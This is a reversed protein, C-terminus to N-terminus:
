VQKRKGYHSAKRLRTMDLLKEVLKNVGWCSFLCSFLLVYQRTALLYGCLSVLPVTSFLLWFVSIYTCRAPLPFYRPELPFRGHDRHYQVLRDKERFLQYLWETSEQENSSSISCIPHFCLMVDCVVEDGKLVTSVTATKPTVITIDVLYKLLPDHRLSSVLAHFGRARPTLHHTFVPLGRKTAVDISQKHKEPTYRTGEPLIVIALRDPSESMKKAKESIYTLDRCADRKVFIWGSFYFTWGYGPIYKIIEKAVARMRGLMNSREVLCFGILWDIEGAHNMTVLQHQSLSSSCLQVCKEYDGSVRIRVRCLKEATFICLALPCYGLLQNLREWCRRSLLSLPFLVAQLVSCLIATLLLSYILFLQVARLRLLSHPSM